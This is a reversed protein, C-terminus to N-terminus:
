YTGKASLPPRRLRVQRVAYPPSVSVTWQLGESLEVLSLFLGHGAGTDIGLKGDGLWLEDPRLGFRYTSTHGFVVMKGPIAPSRFFPERIETLDEPTQDGPPIGPRLGAHVFLFGDDETWLPMGAIFRRYRAAALGDPVTAVPVGALWKRENNGQLAVAGEACLRHVLDLTGASDPGKNVYDGLLILRDTGPVYGARDLLCELLHGHGHIDSAAFLRGM